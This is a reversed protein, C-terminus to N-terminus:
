AMENSQIDNVSAIRWLADRRFESTVVVDQPLIVPIGRQKAQELLDKATEVADAEVKSRGMFVGQAALFTNAMGGGIVIGDALQVLQGLLDVKDSVKAGGIIVWYPPAPNDLVRTLETIEQQMLKGAYAPLYQPVGVISAHARHASGFADNVYIDALNALDRSFKADNAKERPDFRLNELILCSGPSLDKAAQQAKEGVIDEVFHVPYPLVEPLYDAIIRLSERDNPASPRGLHSMIIVRAQQDLLERLTPLTSRIRTVDTIGGTESHLPVNWDLRCLIRRGALPGAHDLSRLQKM